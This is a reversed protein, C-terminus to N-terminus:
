VPGDRTIPNADARMFPGNTKSKAQRALRGVLRKNVGRAFTSEFRHGFKGSVSRARSRSM